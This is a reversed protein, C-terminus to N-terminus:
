LEMQRLKDSIKEALVTGEEKEHREIIAKWQMSASISEFINGEEYPNEAEADTIYLFSERCKVILENKGLKAIIEGNQYKEGIKGELVIPVCKWVYVKSGNLLTFAGPYPKTLARVLNYIEKANQNWDIGGDEKTRKPYYQAADETQEVGFDICLNGQELNKCIMDAAYYGVKLYSTNIDDYEMYEFTKTDIIKGNDVGNKIWFISLEFKECGLLLAWNQPSRGRGKTIGDSSGHIGIVGYTCHNILWEPILRQWGNVILLDISMELLQKKTKEDKMGYQQIGIYEIKHSQCFNNYEYYEGIRQADATNPEICIIGTVIGKDVLLKNM